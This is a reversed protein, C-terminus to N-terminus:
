RLSDSTQMFEITRLHKTLFKLKCQKHLHCTSAYKTSVYIFKMNRGKFNRSFMYPLRYKM